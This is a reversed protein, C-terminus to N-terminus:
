IRARKQSNCGRCLVQLNDPHNSGGVSFPIIHDIEPYLNSGCSRCRYRDREMVFRKVEEPIYRSQTPPRNDVTVSRKNRRTLLFILFAIFIAAIFFYGPSQIGLVLFFVIVGLALLVGVTRPSTSKRSRRYHGRVYVQRPM